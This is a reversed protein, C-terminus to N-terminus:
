MAGTGQREIEDARVTSATPTRGSRPRYKQEGTVKRAERLYRAWTAFSEPLSYGALEGAAESDDICNESLWTYADRDELRRERKTEAYLYALYAKRYAPNLQKLPNAVALSEGAKGESKSDGPASPTSTGAPPLGERIMLRELVVQLPGWLPAAKSPGGSGCGFGLGDVAQVFALLASCNEGNAELTRALARGATVLRNRERNTQRGAELYEKANHTPDIYQPTGILLDLRISEDQHAQFFKRGLNLFADIDSHM